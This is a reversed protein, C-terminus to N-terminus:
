RAVESLYIASIVGIDFMGVLSQGKYACVFEENREIRDAPINVFADSNNFYVILKLREGREFDEGM